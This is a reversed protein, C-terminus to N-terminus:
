AKRYGYISVNGGMTAASATVFQIGNYSSTLNHRIVGDRTATNGSPYAVTACKFFTRAALAPSFVDIRSSGIAINNASGQSFGIFGVTQSAAQSNVNGGADTLGLFAWFYDATNAASSGNLMRLYIDATASMQLNDLTILYNTFDSTFVGEFNTTTGSLAGGGVRWLGVANMDTARLVEGSVFVPFTM